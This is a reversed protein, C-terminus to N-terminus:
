LNDVPLRIVPMSALVAFLVKSTELRIMTAGIYAVVIITTVQWYKGFFHALISKQDNQTV